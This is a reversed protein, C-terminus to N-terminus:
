NLKIPQQLYYSKYNGLPAALLNGGNCAYLYVAGIAEGKSNLLVFGLDSINKNNDNIKIFNGGEYMGNPDIVTTKTITNKEGLDLRCSMLYAKQGKSVNNPNGIKLYKFDNGSVHIIAINKAANYGLISEVPYTTNSDELAVTASTLDKIAPYPVIADGEANIFFVSTSCYYEKDGKYLDIRYVAPSCQAYLSLSLSKRINQDAMRAAIAAVEGRSINSAPTFTGIEDNGTLIGARYLKYVANEYNEGYAIDPIAGNKIDNIEGLAESPLAGALIQAFEARTAKAEYDDYGYTIIGKDLAYTVYPKYWPDDAAFQEGDAYYINYLRDALAITEGLTINGQANFITANVGKMLGLRYVTAVNDAYWASASVDLFQGSNYTNVSEFNALTPEAKPSKIMCFVVILLVVVVGGGIM